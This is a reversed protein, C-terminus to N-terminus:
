RTAGTCGATGAVTTAPPASMGASTLGVPRAIVDAVTTEGRSFMTRVTMPLAGLILFVITYSITKDLPDSTLGQAFASQFVNSGSRGSSRWSPTPAPRRDRRRLRRGRDAGLDGRGRPRDDPRRGLGPLAPRQEGRRAWRWVCSASSCPSSRRAVILGVPDPLALGTLNAGGLFGDPTGDAQPRDVGLLLRDARVAPPALAFVLAFASSRRDRRGPVAPDASRRGQVRLGDPRSVWAVVVGVVVIVIAILVFRNQDDARRRRLRADPDRGDAPRRPLRGGRRRDRRRAGPLWRGARRRDSPQFVGRSAWFGAM